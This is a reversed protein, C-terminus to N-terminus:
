TVLKIGNVHLLIRAELDFSFKESRKYLL